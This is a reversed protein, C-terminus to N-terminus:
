LVVELAALADLMGERVLNMVQSEAGFQWVIHNLANALLAHGPRVVMEVREVVGLLRRRLLCEVVHVKDLDDACGIQREAPLSRASEKVNRVLEDLQTSVALALSAADFGVLVRHGRVLSRQLTAISLIFAM